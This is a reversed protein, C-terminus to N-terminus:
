RAAPGFRLALTELQDFMPGGKPRLRAPASVSAFSSEPRSQGPGDQGLLCHRALTVNHDTACRAQDEHEQQAKSKRRRLGYERRGGAIRGEPHDHRPFARHRATRLPDLTWPRAGRVKGRVRPHLQDRM